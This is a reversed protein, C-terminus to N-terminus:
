FNDYKRAQCDKYMLVMVRDLMFTGQEVQHVFNSGEIGLLFGGFLSISQCVETM